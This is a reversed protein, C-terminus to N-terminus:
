LLLLSPQSLQKRHVKGPYLTRAFSLVAGATEADIEDIPPPM